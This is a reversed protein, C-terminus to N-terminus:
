IICSRRAVEFSNYSLERSSGEGGQIWRSRQGETSDPKWKKILNTLHDECTNQHMDQLRKFRSAVFILSHLLGKEQISAIRQESIDFEAKLTDMNSVKLQVRLLKQQISLSLIAANEWHTVDSSSACLRHVKELQSVKECLQAVQAQLQTVNCLWADLSGLALTFFEDANYTPPQGLSNPESVDRSSTFRRTTSVSGLQISTDGSENQPVSNSSPQTRHFPFLIRM